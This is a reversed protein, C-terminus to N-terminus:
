PVITESYKVIDEGGPGTVVFYARYKKDRGDTIDLSFSRQESSIDFIIRTRGPTSLMVDEDGNMCIIGCEKVENSSNIVATLINDTEDLTISDSMYDVTVNVKGDKMHVPVTKLEEDFIDENYYNLIIDSSCDVTINDEVQFTLTALTGIEKCEEYPSVFSIIQEHSYPQPSTIYPEFAKNFSIEKLVLGKSYDVDFQLGCIGPNKTIDINILVEQGPMATVTSASMELREVSYAKADRFGVLLFFFMLALGCLCDIKRNRM